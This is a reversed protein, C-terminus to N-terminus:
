AVRIIICRQKTKNDNLPPSSKQFNPFAKFTKGSLVFEEGNTYGDMYSYFLDPIYGHMLYSTTSGVFATQFLYYKDNLHLKSSGLNSNYSMQKPKFEQSNQGFSILSGNYYCGFKSNNDPFAAYGGGLQSESQAAQLTYNTMFSYATDNSNSLTVKNFIFSNYFGPEFETSIFFSESNDYFYYKEIIGICRLCGVYFYSLGYDSYTTATPIYNTTLWIAVYDSVISGTDYPISKFHFYIGNRELVKYDTTDKISNFNSTVSMFYHLKSILDDNNTATGEESINYPKTETFNM